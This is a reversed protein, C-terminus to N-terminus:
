PSGITSSVTNSALRVSNSSDSHHEANDYRITMTVQVPESASYDGGDYDVNTFFCGELFWSDIVPATALGTLIDIKTNFKYDNGSLPSLQNHHDVQRQIQEGTLKSVSNTVDDRIIINLTQWAHKGQAYAVSNYSHIEVENYQIKPRDASVVNKTFEIDSTSGGINDFRVRFKYKLKPQLLGTRDDADSVPVGFKSKLIAM